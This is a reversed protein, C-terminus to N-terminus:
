GEKTKVVLRRSWRWSCPQIALFSLACVSLLKGYLLKANYAYEMYSRERTANDPVQHYQKIAAKASHQITLSM